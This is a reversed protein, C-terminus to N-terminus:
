AFGGTGPQNLRSPSGRREEVAAVRTVPRGRNPQRALGADGSERGLAAAVHTVLVGGANFAWHLLAPATASGTRRRLEGFLVGGGATVIVTAPVSDGGARAPHIHWLGFAAAGLLPGAKPFANDLLPELTARFILEESYVTGFPIHVLVWEATSVDQERGSLEGLRARVSPIALAAGYGAVVVAGALAGVRAGRSSWWRPRGGFAAAYGSAFVVNAATRGRHDM